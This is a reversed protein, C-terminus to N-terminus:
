SIGVANGDKVISNLMSHFQWWKEERRYHDYSIPKSLQPIRGLGRKMVLKTENSFNCFLLISLVLLVVKMNQKLFYINKLLHFQDTGAKSYLASASVSPIVGIKIIDVRPERSSM